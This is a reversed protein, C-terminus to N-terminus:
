RTGAWLFYVLLFLSGLVSLALSHQVFGSQVPKVLRDALYRLFGASLPLAGSESAPRRAGRAFLAHTVQRTGGALSHGRASVWSATRLARSRGRQRWRSLNNVGRLLVGPRAVYFLFAAVGGLSTMLLTWGTVQWAQSDDVPMESRTSVVGSLFYHLSNAQEIEGDFLFDSWFQPFGIIAGLISLTGLIGMVWLIPTEPDEVEDWHAQAPLRAEGQLVLYVLRFAYFTTLVLTLLVAPYVLDYGLGPDAGRAAVAIQQMSFFGATLPLGGALSFGGIWFAARTLSLRSGLSGMRRMDQEGRLAVIVVGAAVGLLGKFFAHSILHFVAATQAGLGAAVLVLGLQSVSSWGLVAGIWHSRCAFVAGVLALAVGVGTMVGTALPAASFIFSFRVVLYGAVVFGTVTQMLILGPLPGAPSGQGTSAFAWQAGSVLATALVCLGLADLLTVGGLGSFLLVVSGDLGLLASRVEVISLNPPSEGDLVRFILLTALLLSFEGVRGLGLVWIGLRSQSADEARFGSLLSAGIGVGVLGALMLVLNDALVFVLCMGVQFSAYGIFRQFDTEGGQEWERSRTAYLILLLGVGSIVLCLGSSLADFRFSLEAVLTAGGVGAGLWTALPDVLASAEDNFLLGVFARVSAVFSAAMGLLGLWSITLRSLTKPSLVLSLGLSLAVLLPGLPIMGLGAGGGEVWGNLMGAEGDFFARTRSM